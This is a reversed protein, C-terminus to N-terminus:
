YILGIAWDSENVPPYGALWSLIAGNLFRNERIRTQARFTAFIGCRSFDVIRASCKGDPLPWINTGDRCPM